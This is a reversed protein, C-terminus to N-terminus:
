EILVNRKMLMTQPFCYNMTGEGVDGCFQIRKKTAISLRVERGSTLTGNSHDPIAKLCM